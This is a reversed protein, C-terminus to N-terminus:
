RARNGATFVGLLKRWGRLYRSEPAHRVTDQMAQTALGTRYRLLHQSERNDIFIDRLLLEPLWTIDLGAPINFLRRFLGGAQMLHRFMDDPVCRVNTDRRGTYESLQQVLQQYSLNLDGIAQASTQTPYRLANVAAEAVSEVAVVNVGGRCCLLPTASRVWTILSNWQSPLHPTTGFVWPIQLTTLVFHGHALQEAVQHQELRSALYPHRAALQLEPHDRHLKLFVSSLLVAHTIKAQQAARFLKQVSDVNAHRFFQWADGQPEAREDVGAAFVLTSCGQMLAALQEVTLTDLDGRAYEVAAPFLGQTHQPNRTLVRVAFGQACLQQVIHYGIFGTGGAVFVRPATAAINEPISGM